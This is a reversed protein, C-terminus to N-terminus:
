PLIRGIVLEGDEDYLDAGEVIAQAEVSTVPYKEIFGEPEEEYNTDITQYGWPMKYTYYRYAM